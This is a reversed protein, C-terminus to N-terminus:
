CGTVSYKTANAKDQVGPVMMRTRKGDECDRGAGAGM